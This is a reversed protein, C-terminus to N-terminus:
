SRVDAVLCYAVQSVCSYCFSPISICCRHEVGSAKNKISKSVRGFTHRELTLM